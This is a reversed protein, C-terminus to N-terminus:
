GGLMGGLGGMDPLGMGDIASSQLAAVQTAADRVAALVLDELMEVDSPDVVDPSISIRQMEGTGTMAVTVKGGGASGEVTTNAQVEQAEALQAQMAQAQELLAGLDFGSSDTM